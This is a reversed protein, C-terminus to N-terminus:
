IRNNIKDLRITVAHKHALLGEEMAMREVVPGIEQLGEASLQQFTIKKLFSDLSVGSYARAYGNTPLTHNTGSAYDGVSEPSFHGLFVSGANTVLDALAFPDECALILHEPAYENLLDMAEEASQVLVIRSSELAKRAFVSRPLVELQFELQRQVEEILLEDTTVLLVQSDIGHEAQSLLDAAVFSANATSDAFVAVESPGAPIDIAVGAQQVLQKACTVFQNGPGFIKYVSPVTSTGYAMAAIAQAGGAKIITSIGAVSAAYLIAPHIKGDKGPPTCLVTERCGAVSAPIGLMLVTSFLPATGGPVYLGVREIPVAKQWCTVGPMTEVRIMKPLQARHFAAINDAAINIADKLEEDLSLISEDFESPSVRMDKLDVGDFRRTFELVADDGKIRVENIVDQVKSELSALDM